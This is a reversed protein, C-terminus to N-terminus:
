EEACSPGQKFGGVPARLLADETAEDFVGSEDVVEEPHNKNWLRQFAEINLGEPQPDGHRYDFHWPDKKGMWRFGAPTLIKRWVGPESIDLAMGSEHNSKGPEAALKIGCRKKRYWDFLLYQQAVTRLMSTIKMARGKGKEVAKVLADRAAVAMFPFVADAYSVNDLPPLEAYAGPVMCNSEAIIQQSLGLVVETSCGADLVEALTTSLEAPRPEVTPPEEPALPLVPAPLKDTFKALEPVEKDRSPSSSCSALYLVLGTISAALVAPAAFIKVASSM